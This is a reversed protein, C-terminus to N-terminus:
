QPMFEPFFRKLDYLLGPTFIEPHQAIKAKLETPTFWQVKSVEEPEPKLVINHPVRAVYVREFENIIRGDPPENHTRLTDLIKLSVDRIGLEEALENLASQDYSFGEDM